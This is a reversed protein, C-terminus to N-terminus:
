RDGERDYGEDNVPWPPWRRWQIRYDKAASHQGPPLFPTEPYTLTATEGEVKYLFDKGTAPDSPVPVETVDALRAPFRGGHAAAHLRLAEVCRLGAIHRDVRVRAFLAKGTSPLLYRALDVAPADPQNNGKRAQQDREQFHPAAQWYPLNRWKMLEDLLRDFETFSHLMAVQLHPMAEVKDRPRGLAILVKKAQEHKKFVQRALNIRGLEQLDAFAPEQLGLAMKAMTQVQESNMAGANPDNLVELLGPFTAAAMLREGQLPKRGDFFPNPLDTLAWYLNPCKPHQIVEPLEGLILSSIAVGVLLCILTPQDGAHRGMVMGISLTRLAQEPRDELVELRARVLLLAASERMEQVDPVLTSIGSQRIRESLKLDCTECRGIQELLDFVEQYRKLVERVSDRPLKDLPMERWKEMRLFDRNRTEREVSRKLVETVKKYLPGADEAKQQRLEPLLQYKLAPIPEAAPKLTLTIEEARAPIALLLCCSVALWCRSM